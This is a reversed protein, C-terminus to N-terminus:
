RYVLLVEAPVVAPPDARNGEAFAIKHEPQDLVFGAVVLQGGWPLSGEDDAPCRAVVGVLEGVHALRVLM